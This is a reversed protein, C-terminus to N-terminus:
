PSRPTNQRTNAILPCHVRKINTIKVFVSENALFKLVNFGQYINIILFILDTKRRVIM